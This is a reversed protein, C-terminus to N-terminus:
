QKQHVGTLHQPFSRAKRWQFHRHDKTFQNDKEALQYTLDPKIGDKAWAPHMHKVIRTHVYQMKNLGVAVATQENDCSFSRYSPHYVYNFRNYYTKGMVPMMCIWKQLFERTGHKIERRYRNKLEAQNDETDYWLCGDKDPYFRSMDNIIIQDFGKMQPYMDDSGVLIIDWYGEYENIDRNIASIKGNSYGRVITIIPNNQFEEPIPTNDGHDVSILIRTASNTINNLYSPLWKNFDRKHTPIKILLNM